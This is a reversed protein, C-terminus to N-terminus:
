EFNEITPVVLLKNGLDDKRTVYSNGENDFIKLAELKPTRKLKRYLDVYDIVITKDDEFTLEMKQEEIKGNNAIYDKTM